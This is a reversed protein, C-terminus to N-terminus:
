ELDWYPRFASRDPGPDLVRTGPGEVACDLAWCRPRDGGTESAVVRYRGPVVGTFAFRGAEDSITKQVAHRHFIADAARRCRLAVERREQEVKQIESRVADKRRTAERFNDSSNLSREFEARLRQLRADVEGLDARCEEGARAHDRDLAALDALLFVILGSGPANAPDGPSAQLVGEVLAGSATKGTAPEAPQASGAAAGAPAPAAGTPTGAIWGEVRVRRWGDREEVVTVPADGRLTALWSGRPADFLVLERSGDGATVLRALLVLALLLASSVALRKM